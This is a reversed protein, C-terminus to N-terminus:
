EDIDEEEQLDIYEIVKDTFLIGNLHDVEHCIARALLETAELLREEGNEDLYKVKVKEPREVTGSLNPISLCGEVDVITGDIELIEPNLMKIVGEGIDIVVARRLIGVQPAALGIGNADVMTEVMDDLLTQIRDTVKDIKKSKKRLVPDGDLKIIRLAM